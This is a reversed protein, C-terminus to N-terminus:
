KINLKERIQRLAKLVTGHSVGLIEGLKRQSQLEAYLCLIIREAPTLKSNLSNLLTVMNDDYEPNELDFDYESMIDHLRKSDINM